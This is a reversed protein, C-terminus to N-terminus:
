LTSSYLFPFFYHAITFKTGTSCTKQENGGLNKGYIQHQKLPQSPPYSSFGQELQTKLGNRPNIEPVRFVRKQARM